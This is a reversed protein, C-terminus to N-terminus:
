RQLLYLLQIVSRVDAMSFTNVTTTTSFFMTVENCTVRFIKYINLNLMKRLYEPLNQYVSHYSEFWYLHFCALYM